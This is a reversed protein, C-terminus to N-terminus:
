RRDSRSQALLVVEPELADANQKRGLPDPQRDSQKGPPQNRIPDALATRQRDAEAPAARQERRDRRDVRGSGGTPEKGEGSAYARADL